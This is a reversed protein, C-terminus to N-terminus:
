KRRCEEEMSDNLDARLVWRKERQVRCAKGTHTCNHAMRKMHKHTYTHTRAHTHTNSAILSFYTSHITATNTYNTPNM